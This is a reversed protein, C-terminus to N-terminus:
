YCTETNSEKESCYKEQVTCAVFEELKEKYLRLERRFSSINYITPSSVKELAFLNIKDAM